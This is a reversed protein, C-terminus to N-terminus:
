AHGDGAVDARGWLFCAGQFSEAVAVQLVDVGALGGRVQLLCERDIMVDAGVGGRRTWFGRCTICADPDVHDGPLMGPAVGPLM